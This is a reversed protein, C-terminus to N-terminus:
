YTSTININSGTERIRTSALGSLMELAALSINLDTKWSSILRHCVLYTARVFLAHASDVFINEWKIRPRYSIINGVQTKYLYICIYYFQYIVFALHTYVYIYTYLFFFSPSLFFSLSLLIKEQITFTVIFVYVILMLFSIRMRRINEFAIKIFIYIALYFLLHTNVSRLANRKFLQLTLPM